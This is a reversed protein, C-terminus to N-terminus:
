GSEVWKRPTCITIFPLVCAESIFLEPRLPHLDSYFWPLEGKGNVRWTRLTIQYDEGKPKNPHNETFTTSSGGASGHGDFIFTSSSASSSRGLVAEGSNRIISFGEELLEIETEKWSSAQLQWLWALERREALYPVDFGELIWRIRDDEKKQRHVVRNGSIMQPVARRTYTIPWENSGFFPTSSSVLKFINTCYGVMCRSIGWNFINTYSTWVWFFLDSGM